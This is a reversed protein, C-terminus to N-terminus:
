FRCDSLQQGEPDVTGNLVAASARRASPKGTLVGTTFVAIHGGAETVYVTDNSSDVGVAGGESLSGSGFSGTPPCGTDPVFTCSTGGPQEVVGAGKFVFQELFGGQSVYLDGTAANVAFGSASGERLTVTGFDNGTSTFEDITANGNVKFLDGAADVALGKAETQREGMPVEGIFGGGQNFQATVDNKSFVDLTGTTSVAIGSMEGFSGASTVKGVLQGNATPTTDGWTKELAGTATFKTVVNDGMDGVYVDGASPGTSNDVAIFAPSEFQGPESGSLGEHCGLLSTPTCEEFAIGGGVGWGWARVFAGSAEFEDIRHNGQDAVYVDHTLPNIAVGAPSSVQGAESGPNAFSFSFVHTGQALAPSTAFALATLAPAACLGARKM